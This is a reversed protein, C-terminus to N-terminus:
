QFLKSGDKWPPTSGPKPLQVSPDDRKWHKGALEWLIDPRDRPPYNQTEDLIPQINSENIDAIYITAAMRMEKSVRYDVSSTAHNAGDGMMAAVEYRYKLGGSRLPVEEDNDDLDNDNQKKDSQLALEPQTGNVLNLPVIMAFAKAGTRIVDFHM